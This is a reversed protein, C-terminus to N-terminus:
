KRKRYKKKRGQKSALKEAPSYEIAANLQLLRDRMQAADEFRMEESARLMEKELLEIEITREEDSLYEAPEEAATDQGLYEELGTEISRKVTQPTINNKENFDLQYARRKEVVDITKRMAESVTDAYFIVEGGVNRATRGITQMLSTHSRLFGQKDADLIVVLSVEPLDLGERLLNVGILADFKGLRLNKLIDVRELAKIDSHLYMTRLGHERCYEDLDEALRKTLTTVLVREKRAARREIEKQIDAVQGKAPRVEIPPDVLGTPRTILKVPKRDCLDLEYDAPTASVYITQPQLKQFEDFQMPRNDLASPLRFGHEVLTMKRSRDGNFMGRIQPVTVHSEDIILLFEDPFYDFLNAPREGPTRGDFHRSYNEVGQCYGIEKLMELDYKTRSELRQAELLKDNRRLFNLQEELEAEISGVSNEVTGAEMVFHKAPLLPLSDFVGMVEGTLHDVEQITDIEDGFMEIRIVTEQYSPWVEVADGMVRINGRSFGLDNRVYQVDVLKRLLEDRSIEMGVNLEIILKEYDGPRGLGYICSVSAVVIVDKRLMLNSTASLRLRDIKENISADKEIYVDTAPLYAEPQYYDYYSIFYEVANDPFFNKFEGYLQACLTKNHSIVLVPMDFKSIANAVVFTKGSGTVGLLSQHKQGSRIGGTLKEIAEPQEGAPEFDSKLHFIGM